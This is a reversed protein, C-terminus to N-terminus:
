FLSSSCGEILSFINALHSFDITSRQMSCNLFKSSACTIILIIRKKNIFICLNENGIDNGWNDVYFWVSLMLNATNNENIDKNAIINKNTSFYSALQTNEENNALLNADCMIDYIIDTRYFIRNIIYTILFIFFIIFIIRTVNM